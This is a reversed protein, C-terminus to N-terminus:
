LARLISIDQWCWRRYRMLDVKLITQTDLLIIFSKKLSTRYLSILFSSFSNSTDDLLPLFPFRLLLQYNFGFNMFSVPELQVFSFYNSKSCFFYDLQHAQIMYLNNFIFNSPTYLMKLLWLKKWTFYLALVFIM